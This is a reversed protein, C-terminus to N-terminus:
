TLVQNFKPKTVNKSQCFDILQQNNYYPNSEIQNVLPKENSNKLLRDTQFQNFNSLGLGKLHKGVLKEMENYTIVYDIEDFEMHGKEKNFPM